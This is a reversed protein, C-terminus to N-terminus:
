FDLGKEETSDGVPIACVELDDDMFLTALSLVGCTVCLPSHMLANCFGPVVLIIWITKGLETLTM